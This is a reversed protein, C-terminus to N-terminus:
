DQRAFRALSVADGTATGHVITLILLDTDTATYTLDPVTLLGSPPATNCTATL